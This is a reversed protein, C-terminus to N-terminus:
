SLIMWVISVTNNLAHAAIPALLSNARLQLWALAAGILCICPVNYPDSIHVIGFLLASVFIGTGVYGAARFKGFLYGRFFIEEALPAGVCGFLLLIWKTATPLASATDNWPSPPDFGLSARLAVQYTWGLALLLLGGGIGVLIARGAPGAFPPPLPHGRRFARQIQFVGMGAMALQTGALISALVISQTFLSLASRTLGGSGGYMGRFDYGFKQLHVGFHSWFPPASLGRYDLRVWLDPGRREIQIATVRPQSLAWSRLLGDDAPLRNVLYTTEQFAPVQSAIFPTSFLTGLVLTAILAFYGEAFLRLRPPLKGLFRGILNLPGKM